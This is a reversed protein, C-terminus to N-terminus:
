LAAALVLFLLGFVIRIVGDILAMRLSVGALRREM